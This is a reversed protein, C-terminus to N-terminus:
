KERGHCIQCEIVEGCVTGYKAEFALDLTQMSTEGVSNESREYIGFITSSQSSFIVHGSGQGGSDQLLCDFQKVPPKNEM